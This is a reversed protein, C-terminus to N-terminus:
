GYEGDYNAPALSVQFRTGRGNELPSQLSIRGGLNELISYVLSLGLGTGEGPDKTTFFPEFVQGQIDAPIGSGDDAVRIHLKGEREEADIKIQGNRDCADRANGLLNVFVQLLRQNEALVLLERGCLNEFQVTKAARDLQLLHIAEDVCDALNVPRLSAPDVVDRGTHAFHVLSEVIRTVRETQKLIETASEPVSEIDDEVELNQALCAIGTIPNGIEHAVGAALRGISALRESHLLERELIEYDTLDEVVIVQDESMGSSSEVAAKHLSIWRGPNSSRPLHLKHAAFKGSAVFDQLLKGWEEPLSTLYSGVVQEGPIGTTEEMSRNWMLIEGDKGLSFVGIPLDRLTERHYRRLNDLDAALGTFSTYETDLRREILSIDESTQPNDYQWPICHQMIDFAVAPGLLGSLNAEIRDRLQRLAYPRSEDPELRLDKLAREVEASAAHDGLAQALRDSFEAPNALGLTHRIPRVLDDMSCIEASTLEEESTRTLVTVLVFLGINIGLSGIAAATWVQDRIDFWDLLAGRLTPDAGTLLPLVALLYWTLFGGLLGAALGYRNARPWYVTALLGPLFQLTGIFATLGLEVLMEHSRVSQAFLFGALIITGILVARLWNLKAYIDPGTELGSTGRLQLPLVLHKLCMNALALTSVIIVASAASTGALFALISIVRSGTDIGLAMASYVTPLQSGLEMAAWTIPLIPLSLLLLYSTLGWSATRLRSGDPGESFAMHFMHPMTVAGAFFILLLAHASDRRLPTNLAGVVDPNSALWRDLGSFGGFVEYVAYLGLAALALVKVVSEFAIAVVLGEHREEPKLRRTGFYITFTAILICFIFALVDHVGVDHDMSEHDGSLLHTAGFVLEVQLALLPLVAALLTLTTLAGVWPSRFRFTLLDALSSLQYIRCTRMVPFMLLPSLLLMLSIGTYYLLFNYGYQYALQSAGYIALGGAIVGLSLVYIAPHELFRRPLKGRDALLGVAFLLALYLLMSGVIEPVSFTM